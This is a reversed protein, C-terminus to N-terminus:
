IFLRASSFPSSAQKNLGKRGSDAELMRNVQLSRGCLAAAEKLLLMMLAATIQEAAFYFVGTKHVHVRSRPLRALM